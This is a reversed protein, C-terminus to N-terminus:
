SGDPWGGRHLVMPCHPLQWRPDALLAQTRDAYPKSARWGNPYPTLGAPLESHDLIREQFRHEFENDLEITFAIVVQSVLTSLPLEAM